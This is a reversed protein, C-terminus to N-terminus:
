ASFWDKVLEENDSPPPLDIEVAEAKAAADFAADAKDYTGLLEALLADAVTGDTVHKRVVSETYARRFSNQATIGSLVNAINEQLESVTIEEAMDKDNDSDLDFNSDSDKVGLLGVGEVGPHKKKPKKTKKVKKKPM